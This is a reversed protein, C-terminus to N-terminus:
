FGSTVRAINEELTLSYLPVLSPCPPPPHSCLVAAVRGFVACLLARRVYSLADGKPFRLNQQRQFCYYELFRFANVLRQADISCCPVFFKHFYDLSHAIQRRVFIMRETWYILGSGSEGDEVM